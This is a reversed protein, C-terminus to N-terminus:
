AKEGNIATDLVGKNSAAFGTFEAAMMSEFLADSLTLHRDTYAIIPKIHRNTSDTVTLERWLHMSGIKEAHHVLTPKLKLYHDPDFFMKKRMVKASELKLLTVGSARVDQSIAPSREIDISFTHNM